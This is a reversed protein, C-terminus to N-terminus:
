GAARGSGPPSRSARCSCRGCRALRRSGVPERRVAREHACGIRGARRGRRAGGVAVPRMSQRLILALVDRPRAGLALRIGIERLASASSTRCWAMSASRPSCSPSRASRARSRRSSARSIERACSTTRSRVWGFRSVPISARACRRSHGRRDLRLGHASRVLLLDPLVGAVRSRVLLREDVVGLTSTQADKSVGVM